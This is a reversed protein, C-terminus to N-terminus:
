HKVIKFVSEKDNNRIKVIYHGAALGAINVATTALTTNKVLLMKGYMDFIRINATKDLDPINITLVNRVPNPFINIRKNVMIEEGGFSATGTAIKLTYCVTANNASGSPYVRAYYTGTAVTINITESTTGNNRSRGIRSGSANQLDLQYNAPM